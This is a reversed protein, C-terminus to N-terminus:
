LGAEDNFERIRWGAARVTFERRCEQMYIFHDRIIDGCKVGGGSEYESCYLVSVGASRSTPAPDFAAELREQLNGLLMRAEDTPALMLHGQPTLVPIRNSITM